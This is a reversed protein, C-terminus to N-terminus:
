GGVLGQQNLCDGLIAEWQPLVESWDCRQVDARGTRSLRGALEPDRLIRKLAEASAKADGVPVLLGSAGNRVIYPVGGVETSVVCLGCAMAELVTVPTNDITSTNLFLDAENLWQPVEEKPVGGVLRVQRELGLRQVRDRTEELSGDGKDGGVMTLSLEPYDRALERTVEVALTPEYIRHFARLWVIRPAAPGRARFPYRGLDLANPVVRISSAFPEM